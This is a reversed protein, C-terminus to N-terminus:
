LSKNDDIQSRLNSAYLEFEEELEQLVRQEAESFSLCQKRACEIVRNLYFHSIQQRQWSLDPMPVLKISETPYFDKDSLGAAFLNAYDSVTIPVSPNQAFDEQTSSVILVGAMRGGRMVPAACSSCEHEDLAVLVRNDPENKCWIRVRQSLAAFGALTTSGLYRKLDLAFPWPAQGRMEVEYLSHINGDARPSMLRAYTLALGYHNPDFFLLGHEFLTEVIRWRRSSDDATMSAQELVRRYLDQSAESIQPILKNDVSESKQLQSEPKSARRQKKEMIVRPRREGGLLYGFLFKEVIGHSDAFYTENLHIM